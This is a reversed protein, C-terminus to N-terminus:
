RNILISIFFDWEKLIGNGIGEKPGGPDATSIWWAKKMSSPHPAVRVSRKGGMKDMFLGQLLHVALYKWHQFHM